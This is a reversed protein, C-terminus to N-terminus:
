LIGDIFQEPDFKELDGIKEGTGVFVVPIELEGCLSIVFGGKATSDLKTLVIGDLEVAENFLRAQSIANNGTTADLVLLKYVNAQPYERSIVRSIKKLEEMLNAKVHLRGATDVLLVDTGTAKVSSLAAFGVASPDSGEEHKVIRVGARDAWVTLQDAAAARFTDAAAVTVTKKNRLFYDALKGVTTTKGVGNVGILMIVAPYKIEPVEARTLTDELIDKLLNVVYEEERLKEKKVEARLDEVTEEATTVSIDASILIEELEDYFEDDIKNRSFLSKIAGGLTEKTKKLANAIKSFFGM